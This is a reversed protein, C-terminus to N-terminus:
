GTELILLNEAKRLSRELVPGSLHVRLPSCGAVGGGPGERSELM